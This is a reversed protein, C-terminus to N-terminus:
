CLKYNAEYEWPWPENIWQWPYASAAGGSCLPGYFGEYNQRMMRAQMSIMNYQSLVEQDTPHTNLYLQLDILTFDIAAIQKLMELRNDDM